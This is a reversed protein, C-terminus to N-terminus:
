PCGAFVVCGPTPTPTLDQGCNPFPAEPQSGGSFLYGLLNVADAINAAGDDDIDLARMCDNAAGSFLVSLLNIADAISISGDQNTDGRVFDPDIGGGSADVMGVEGAYNQPTNSGVSWLGTAPDKNYSTVGDTPLTTTPMAITDYLFLEITDGTTEFFSDPLIYDPTPAGPLAAFGATGLLLYQFATDGTLNGPFDFQNGNVTSRIWKGSMNTECCAATPQHLEIFQITGDANSYIESLDWLHSGADAPAAWLCLGLCTTAIRWASIRM